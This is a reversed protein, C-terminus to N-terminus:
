GHYTKHSRFSALRRASGSSERAQLFFATATNDAENIGLAALDIHGVRLKDACRGANALMHEVVITACSHCVEVKVAACAQVGVVKEFGSSPNFFFLMQSAVETGMKWNWLDLSGSAKALIDTMMDFRFCRAEGGKFSEALDSLQPGALLSLGGKTRRDRREGTVVIRAAPTTRHRFYASAAQRHMSRRRAM